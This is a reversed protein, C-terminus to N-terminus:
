TGVEAATHSGFLRFVSCSYHAIYCDCLISTNLWSFRTSASRTRSSWVSCHARLDRTWTQTPNAYPHNPHNAPHRHQPPPPPPAQAPPPRHPHPRPTRHRSPTPPSRRRRRHSTRKARWRRFSSVRGGSWRKKRDRLRGSLWESIWMMMPHREFCGWNVIIMQSNAANGTRTKDSCEDMWRQRQRRCKTKNLWLTWHTAATPSAM